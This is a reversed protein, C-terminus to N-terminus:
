DDRRLARRRERGKLLRDLEDASQEDADRLDDALEPSCRTERFGPWESCRLKFAEWLPAYRAFEPSTNELILQARYSILFVVLRFYDDELDTIQNEHPLEDSWYFGSAQFHHIREACDDFQLREFAPANRTVVDDIELM